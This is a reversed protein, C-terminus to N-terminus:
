DPRAITWGAWGAVDFALIDDATKTPDTVWTELGALLTDRNDRLEKLGWTIPSDVETINNRAATKLISTYFEEIWAFMFRDVGKGGWVTRTRLEMEQSIQERKIEAARAKREPETFCRPGPITADWVMALTMGDDEYCVPGTYWVEGPNLTETHRFNIGGGVDLSAALPM